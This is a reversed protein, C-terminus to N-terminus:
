VLHVRDRSHVGLRLTLDWHALMVSQMFRHRLVTWRINWFARLHCLFVTLNVAQGTGQQQTVGDIQWRSSNHTVFTFQSAASSPPSMRYTSNATPASFLMASQSSPATAKQEVLDPMAALARLPKNTSADHTVNLKLYNGQFQEVILSKKFSPTTSIWSTFM